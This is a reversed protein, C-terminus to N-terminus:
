IKVGMKGLVKGCLYLFASAPEVRWRYIQGQLIGLIESDDVGNAMSVPMWEKSVKNGLYTFVM